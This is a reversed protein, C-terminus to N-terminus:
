LNPNMLGYFNSYNSCDDLVFRSLKLSLNNILITGNLLQQEYM